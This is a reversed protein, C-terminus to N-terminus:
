TSPDEMPSANMGVHAHRTHTHTYKTLTHRWIAPLPDRPDTWSKTGLRPCIFFVYGRPDVAPEVHAPLPIRWTSLYRQVRESRPDEVQRGAMLFVSHDDERRELVNPPLPFRPDAFSAAKEIHDLFFVCGTEPDKELGWNRPFYIESPAEVKQM